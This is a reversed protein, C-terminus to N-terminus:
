SQGGSPNAALWERGAIAMKDYADKISSVVQKEIQGGIFRVNVTIDGSAISECGTGTPEAKLTGEGTFKSADIFGPLVKWHMVGKERDFTNLQDYVLKKAGVIKAVPAPLEAKATFRLRRILKGGEEREELVERDVASDRQLLADFGDDWYMQWWRETSCPYYHRVDLKM